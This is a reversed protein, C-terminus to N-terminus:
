NTQPSVPKSSNKDLAAVINLITEVAGTYFLPDVREFIDSTKHYDRHLDVGFYLYPIRRKAFPAHDSANDWDTTALSAGRRRLKGEHGTRLCVNSQYVAQEVLPRLQKNRRTGAMYLRQGNDGRAVMDLNINYKVQSLPLPPNEVFAKAGFLGSEEADTALFIISHAPPNQVFYEALTLMAAVGSANDDAGNYIRGGSKGLHDYHATVVIYDKPVQHGSIFGGINVGQKGNSYTFPLRYNRNLPKLGIARYRMQLYKQAKASGVSGAERGEMQDSAIIKLDQLLQQQNITGKLSPQPPCYALRNNSCSALLLLSLLFFLRFGFKM